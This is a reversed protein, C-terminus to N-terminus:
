DLRRMDAAFILGEIAVAFYDESVFAIGTFIWLLAALYLPAAWWAVIQLPDAVPSSECERALDNLDFGSLWNGM